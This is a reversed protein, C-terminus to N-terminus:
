LGMPLQLFASHDLGETPILSHAVIAHGVEGFEMGMGVRLRFALESIIFPKDSWLLSQLLFRYLDPGGELLGRVRGSGIEILREVGLILQSM